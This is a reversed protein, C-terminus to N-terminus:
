GASPSPAPRDESRDGVRELWIERWYPYIARPCFLRDRSLLGGCVVGDLLICDGPLEILKGSREDIIREVRGLVTFERGCFPLMEVDFWLGRNRQGFSLTAVIEEKSKVRVRDGPKLGLSAKPTRKQPSGQLHPSERIRWVLPIPLRRLRRALANYWSRALTRVLVGLGVNGSWVERAYQRPDWWPLPSSARLLETAQCVYIEGDARAARAHRDLSTAASDADPASSKPSRPSASSAEEPVPRLWAEKWFVLCAAQCGGHATGSCRVGGLHVTERMRRSGSKEITDCTKEARRSVPFQRGCFAAMEPMFPLGDLAGHEDLTGLIEPLPRVEVLDGPRLGSRRSRIPNKPM